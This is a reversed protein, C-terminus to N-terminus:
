DDAFREGRAIEEPALDVGVASYGALAFAATYLGGACGMDLLSAGKTTREALEDLTLALRKQNLRAVPHDTFAGFTYFMGPDELDEQAFAMAQERVREVLAVSAQDFAHGKSHIM